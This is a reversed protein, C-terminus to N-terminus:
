GPTRNSLWDRPSPLQATPADPLLLPLRVELRCGPADPRDTVLASGRHLAAQQAVLTLGLGSGPSDPRRHFRHFVAARDAPPVGPGSDDVTLRVTGDEVRLRVEVEAPRDAPRTTPRGHVAANTLLNALLIRLGADWGFVRAESPLETRYVTDPHRRAAEAVATDVLEALDVPGFASAEVLDGRALASLASLLDLMRAHDQQLEGLVEAREDEPLDPHAALVDLNTRLSMLPTRLEHSAASSFSRATDLAQATRAAQEDYRSLLLAIAGSLEDVEATGTRAHAFAAHGTRPDLAAARRGLRRLPLTAREALAFAVLGSLPAAVLAVLLVRRRVARLEDAPEEAPALVWLTGSASGSDVKVTLVRWASCNQRVTVAKGGPEQPLLLPDDPQSGASLLVTGDAATMRVGADVAADMLKRQQNQEVKPRGRSDAALLGRANPLVAAARAGLQADQRRHLDTSVLPLLLVGAAAVLLPVLVAAGIAIRTSLKM